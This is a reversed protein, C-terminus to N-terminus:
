ADRRLRPDLLGVVVDSLISSLLVFAGTILLLLNVAYVDIPQYGNIPFQFVLLTGLGSLRFIIDVALAAGFIAGIDALLGSVFAAISVRLVHRFFIRTESLGKARATTIYPADLTEIVATRLHRAHLGLFALALAIGPFTLYRFVNWIYTLGTGAPSCGAITGANLGFGPACQGPWGAVPFPGLGDLSGLSSAAYAILLSLLFAPIAWACYSLARLTVDLAGDRRRAAVWSLAISMPLVFISAVLLLAASHGLATRFQTAWLPAKSFQGYYSAGTFLGKLWHWYAPLAPQGKLPLDHQWFFVFSVFTAAALVVVMLLLRRAAAVLM